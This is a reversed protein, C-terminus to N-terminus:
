ASMTLASWNWRKVFQEMGAMKIITAYKTINTRGASLRSLLHDWWGGTGEKGEGSTSQDLPSWDRCPLVVAPCPVPGKM